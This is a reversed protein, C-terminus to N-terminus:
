DQVCRVSFLKSKTETEWGANNHKYSKFHNYARNGDYETSSWWNGYNGLSFFGGSSNGLGGPLAAFGHSDTGNGSIGEFSNWGSKAKLYKGATESKYPSESGSTGDVLRYLADWESNSPLHWGSPCSKIAAFWNYLRGYRLCNNENNEYCKSGGVNYNLNQAIWTQNGIKVTKYTEDDRPDTFIGGEAIPKSRNNPTETETPTENEVVPESYKNPKSPAETETITESATIPKSNKDYSLIFIAIAAAAFLGLVVGVVAGTSWNYKRKMKIIFNVIAGIVAGVITGVIGLVLTGGIESGYDHYRTNSMISSLIGIIIGLATGIKGGWNAKFVFFWAKFAYKTVYFSIVAFCGIAEALGDDSSGSSTPRSYTGGSDEPPYDVSKLLDVLNEQACLRNGYTDFIYGDRIQWKWNGYTDYISNDRIQWKWNGYLDYICNDERIRYVLNGYRDKLDAM